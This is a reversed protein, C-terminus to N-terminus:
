TINLHICIWRLPRDNKWNFPHPYRMSYILYALKHELVDLQKHTHTVEECLKVFLYFRARNRCASHQVCVTFYMYQEKSSLPTSSSYLIKKWSQIGTLVRKLEKHQSTLYFSINSMAYAEDSSFRWDELSGLSYLALRNSWNTKLQNSLASTGKM